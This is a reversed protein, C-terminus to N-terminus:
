KTIREANSSKQSLFNCFFTYVPFAFSAWKRRPQSRLSPLLSSPPLVPFQMGTCLGQPLCSCLLTAFLLSAPLHLTSPAM